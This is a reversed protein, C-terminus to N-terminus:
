SKLPRKSSSKLCTKMSRSEDAPPPLLSPPVDQAPPNIATVPAAMVQELSIAPEPEVVPAAEPQTFDPLTVEPLDLEAVQAM